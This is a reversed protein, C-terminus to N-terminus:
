LELTQQMLLEDSLMDNDLKTQSAVFVARTLHSLDPSEWNLPFEEHAPQTKTLYVYPFLSKLYKWLMFRTPRCGIRSYAQTQDDAETVTNVESDLDSSVCTELLLLGKCCKALYDLSVKPDEVHYLLGYCYVIDYQVGNFDPPNEMDLKMTSLHPFRQRIIELNEERVETITIDCGRDIFFTSHDGIGAGVELVSKGQIPLRLSNLHEQRRTNHRLYGGSHFLNIAEQMREQLSKM